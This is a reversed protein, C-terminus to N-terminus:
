QACLMAQIQCCVCNIDADTTTSINSLASHLVTSHGISDGHYMCMGVLLTTDDYIKVVAVM